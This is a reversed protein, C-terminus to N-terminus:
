NVFKEAAFLVPTSCWELWLFSFLSEQLLQTHCQWYLVYQILLLHIRYRLVSLPDAFLCYAPKQQDYSQSLLQGFCCQVLAHISFLRFLYLSDYQWLFIPFSSNHHNPVSRFCCLAQYGLFLFLLSLMRFLVLLWISQSQFLFETSDNEHWIKCRRTIKVM